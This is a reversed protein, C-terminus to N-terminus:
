RLGDCKCSIHPILQTRHLSRPFGGRQDQALNLEQGMEKAARSSDLTPLIAGLSELTTNVIVHCFIQDKVIPVDKKVSMLREVAASEEDFEM